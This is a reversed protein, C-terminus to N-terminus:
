CAKLVTRRAVAVAPWGAARRRASRRRHPRRPVGGDRPPRDRPCVRGTGPGRTAVRGPAAKVRAPGVATWTLGRFCTAPNRGSNDVRSNHVAARRWGSASPAAPRVDAVRPYLRSMQTHWTRPSGTAAKACSRWCCIGRVRPLGGHEGNRAVHNQGGGDGAGVWSRKPNSRLRAPRDNLDASPLERNRSCYRSATALM